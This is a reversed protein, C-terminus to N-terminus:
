SHNQLWENRLLGAIVVDEPMGNRMISQRIIGEVKFGLREAVKTSRKNAQLFHIEIKNLGIKDFLFEVFKVMSRSIIGRGEYESSIWYGIQARKTEQDWAHMGIGGIIKDHEFIGLALAEQMNLQHLSQQIFQLSHEPKTTKSVWELWPNLHKRSNNVADFLEQADAVAYTRLQLRDDIIISVLPM